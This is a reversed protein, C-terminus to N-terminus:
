PLNNLLVLTPVLYPGGLIVQAPRKTEEQLSVM